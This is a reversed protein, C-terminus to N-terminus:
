SPFFVKKYYKQPSEKNNNNTFVIAAGQPTRPLGLQRPGTVEGGWECTWRVEGWEGWPNSFQIGPRKPFSLFSSKLTGQIPSRPTTPDGEPPRQQGRAPLKPGRSPPVWGERNACTAEKMNQPFPYTEGKPFILTPSRWAM